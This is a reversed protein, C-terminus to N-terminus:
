RRSARRSSFQKPRRVLVSCRALVFVDAHLRSLVSDIYARAHAEEPSVSADRELTSPPLVHMLILEADFARAQEIAVPLKAEGLPSLDLPVLIRSISSM